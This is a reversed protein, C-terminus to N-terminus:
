PAVPAWLWGIKTVTVAHRSQGVEAGLRLGAMSGLRAKVVSNWELERFVVATKDENLCCIHPHCGWHNQLLLTNFNPCNKNGSHLLDVKIPQQVRIVFSVSKQNKGAHLLLLVSEHLIYLHPSVGRSHPPILRQIYAINTFQTFYTSKSRKSCEFSPRCLSRSKVLMYLVCQLNMCYTSIHHCGEQNSHSQDLVECVHHTNSVRSNWWNRASAPLNLRYKCIHLHGRRSKSCYATWNPCSESVCYKYSNPCSSKM